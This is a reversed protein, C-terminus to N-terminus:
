MQSMELTSGRTYRGPRELISMIQDALAFNRIKTLLRELDPHRYWRAVDMIFADGFDLFLCRFDHYPNV